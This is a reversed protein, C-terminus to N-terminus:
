LLIRSFMDNLNQRCFPCKRDLLKEKCSVCLNKTNKCCALSHGSKDFCIDCKNISELEKQSTINGPQRSEKNKIKASFRAIM